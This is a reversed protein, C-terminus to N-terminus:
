ELDGEQFDLDGVTYRFRQIQSARSKENITIIVYSVGPNERAPQVMVRRKTMFRRVVEEPKMGIVSAFAGTMGVDTIYATGGPLIQEDATQVHSHSGVVASVRGNLHWGMAYKESTADAHMDVLIPFTSRQQALIRDVEIFPCEIADMFVRGMLNIVMLQLGNKELLLHGKGPCRERPPEPFNAPRILRDTTEFLSLVEKNDWIHNGSTLCDFGMERMENFTRKNVGKGGALNEANAIMFDPQHQQIINPLVQKIARRGPKGFVDGFYLVVM